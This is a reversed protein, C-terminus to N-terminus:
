EETTIIELALRKAEARDPKGSETKPLEDIFIFFRPVEFKDMKEFLSNRLQIEDFPTSVLMVLAEGLKSDNISTLTFTLDKLITSIKSELSELQIKIGGSIITNDKRGIIEFSGDSNVRAIDNTVLKDKCVLPAEIVLTGEPSTSVKVRSLPRYNKSKETGNIKRLAIHSLTETMGYTSYCINKISQLELELQQDIPAGGIIVRKTGEFLTREKPNALTNHVQLPVMAAFKPSKILKEYPNGTAGTTWLDLGGVLARVVMMQGAIYKTPLCLLASDGQRLNLTKCTLAASNMMQEKKVIIAKPVGTSGSTFLTIEESPKFWEILFNFLDYESSLQLRMDNIELLTERSYKRGHLTLSQQQRDFQFRKM